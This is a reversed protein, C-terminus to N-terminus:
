CPIAYWRGMFYVYCTGAVSHTPNLESGTRSDPLTGANLALPLALLAGALFNRLKKM